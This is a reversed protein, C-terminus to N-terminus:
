ATTISLSVAVVGGVHRAQGAADGGHRGDGFDLDFDAVRDTEMDVAELGSPRAAGFGVVM